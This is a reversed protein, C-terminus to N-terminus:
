KFVNESSNSNFSYQIHYKPHIDTSQINLNEDTINNPFESTCFEDSFQYMSLECDMASAEM